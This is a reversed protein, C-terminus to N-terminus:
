KILEAMAVSILCPVYVKTHQSAEDSITITAVNDVTKLLVMNSTYDSEGVLNVYMTDSFRKADQETKFTLVMEVLNTKKMSDGGEISIIYSRFSNSHCFFSPHAQSM